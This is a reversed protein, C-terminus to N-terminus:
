APIGWVRSIQDIAAQEMPDAASGGSGFRSGERSKEAVHRCMQLIAQGVEEAQEPAAKRALLEAADSCRNLASFKFDEFARQKIDSRFQPALREVERRTEDALLAQVLPNAPYQLTAQKLGELIAQFEAQTGSGGSYKSIAVTAGALVAARTLLTLEESTFNQGDDVSEGRCPKRDLRHQM